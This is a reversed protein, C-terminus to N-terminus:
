ESERLYERIMLELQEQMNTENETVKTKFALHLKEDLKLKITKM